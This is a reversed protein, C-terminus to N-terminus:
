AVIPDVSIAAYRGFDTRSRAAPDAFTWNALHVGPRSHHRYITKAL